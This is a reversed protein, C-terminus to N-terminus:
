QAAEKKLRVNWRYTEGTRVSRVLTIVPLPVFREGANPGNRRMDNIDMRQRWGGPDIHKFITRSCLLRHSFINRMPGFCGSRKGRGNHAAM